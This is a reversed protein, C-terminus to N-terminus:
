ETIITYPITIASEAPPNYADEDIFLVFTIEGSEEGFNASDGLYLPSDTEGPSLTVDVLGRGGKAALEGNVTVNLFSIYMNHDLSSEFHLELEYTYLDQKQEPVTVVIGNANYLEQEEIFIMPPASSNEPLQMEIESIQYTVSFPYPDTGDNFNATAQITIESFEKMNVGLTLIQLFGTNPNTTFTNQDGGGPTHAEWNEVTNNDLLVNQYTFEVSKVEKLHHIISITLETKDNEISTIWPLTFEFDELRKKEAPKTDEETKPMDLETNKATGAGITESADAGTETTEATETTAEQERGSGCGIATLALAFALLCAATKKISKKRM